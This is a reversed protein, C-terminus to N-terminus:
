INSRRSYLRAAERQLIRALEEGSALANIAHPELVLIRRGERLATAIIERAGTLSHRDGTVGNLALLVGDSLGRMRLKTDLWAVELSGVRAQWNKCEIILYREFGALGDLTQENECFVDIEQSAFVDLEDRAEVTLGPITGFTLAAFEELARGREQPTADPDTATAFAVDVAARDFVAM